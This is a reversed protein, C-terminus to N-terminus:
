LLDLLEPRLDRVAAHYGTTQGHLKSGTIQSVKHCVLLQVSAFSGNWVHVFVTENCYLFLTIKVLCSQEIPEGIRNYRRRLSNFLLINEYYQRSAM